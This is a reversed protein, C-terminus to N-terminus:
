LREEATKLRERLQAVEDQATSLLEDTHSLMEVIAEERVPPSVSPDDIKHDWRAYHEVLHLVGSSRLKGLLSVYIEGTHAGAGISLTIWTRACVRHGINRRKIAM